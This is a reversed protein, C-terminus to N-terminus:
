SGSAARSGRGADSRSPAAPFDACSRTSTEPIEGVEGRAVIAALSTEDAAIEAGVEIFENAAIATEGCALLEIAVADKLFRNGAITNEECAVGNIISWPLRAAGRGRGVVAARRLREGRLPERRHPQRPRARHEGRRARRRLGREGNGRFDNGAILTEASYGGWLGCIACGELRNGLVLNALSFTM